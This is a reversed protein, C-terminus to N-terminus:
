FLFPLEMNHIKASLKEDIEKLYRIVGDNTLGM